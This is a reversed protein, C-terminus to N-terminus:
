WKSPGVMNRMTVYLGSSPSFWDPPGVPPQPNKVYLAICFWSITALNTYVFRWHCFGDTITLNLPGVAITAGLRGTGRNVGQIWVECLDDADVFLYCTPFTGNNAATRRFYTWTNVGGTGAAFPSVGFGQFPAGGSGDPVEYLTPSLIDFTRLQGDSATFGDGNPVATPRMSSYTAVAVNATSFTGSYKGQSDTVVDPPGVWGANIVGTDVTASFYRNMVNIGSAFGSLTYTVTDGQIPEYSSFSWQLAPFVTFGIWTQNSGCAAEPFTTDTAWQGPAAASSSSRANSYWQQVGADNKGVPLQVYFRNRGARWYTTEIPDNGPWAVYTGTSSTLNSDLPVTKPDTNGKTAWVGKGGRGATTQDETWWLSIAQPANPELGAFELRVSSDKLLTGNNSTWSNGTIGGPQTLSFTPVTATGSFTSSTSTVTGAVGGTNSTITAVVTTSGIRSRSWTVAYSRSGGAEITQPFGVSVQSFTMFSTSPTLSISAVTLPALGSNSIAVFLLNNSYITASFTSLGSFSQSIIGFAQTATVSVNRNASTTGILANEGVISINSTGSYASSTSYTVTTSKTGGALILGSILGANVSGGGPNSVNYNSLTARANGTNTVTVETSASNSSGAIYNYSVSSPNATISLTVTPAIIRLRVPVSVSNYSPGIINPGSGDVSGANSRFRINVTSNGSTGSTSGVRVTFSITSGNAVSRPTPLTYFTTTTETLVTGDWLTMSYANINSNASIDLYIGYIVLPTSGTLSASTIYWTETTGLGEGPICTIQPTGTPESISYGPTPTKSSDTVTITVPDSPTGGGSGDGFPVATVTFTETGETLADPRTSISATTFSAAFTSSPALSTTRSLLKFGDLDTSATWGTEEFDLLSTPSTAKIFWTVTNPVNYNSATFTFNILAGNESVSTPSASIQYTATIYIPTGDVTFGNSPTFTTSTPAAVSIAGGLGVGRPMSRVIISDFTGDVGDYNSNNGDNFADVFEIKFTVITAGGYSNDAVNSKASIRYYNANYIGTSNKNYVTAYSNSLAYFDNKAFTPNDATVSLLLNTWSTNQNLGVTPAITGGSRSASFKFSSGANFFYRAADATAFTIATEYFAYNKWGGGTNPTGTYESYTATQTYSVNALQNPGVQDKLTNCTTALVSYADFPDALVTNGVAINTLNPDVDSQHIRTKVIDSRLNDLQVETIKEHQSVASSALVQGYGQTAEVQGTTTVGLVGAVQTRANNYVTPTVKTSFLQSLPVGANITIPVSTAVLDGTASVTRISVTFTEASEVLGDQTPTVSFSGTSDVILVSGISTAFDGANSVSWYLRTNDEVNVTNVTIILPSGENVSLASPLIVYESLAPPPPGQSTDVISVSTSTAVPTGAVSDTFIAVTFNELGETTLDLAPTVSFSGTNGIISVIGTSIGFDDARSALWYLITNDTVNTTTVTFTLPSGENVSSAAPIVAYTPPNPSPPTTSTDNITVLSSIVAIDGSSSITRITARFTEPGETTTDLIPTVSFTGTNNIIAVTGSSIGFDSINNVSWYLVTNDLIDTTNVTFTLTSGENVSSSSVISYTANPPPIITTSTDNIIVSTSTAVPSGTVSGTYISATFIEPGETTADARPTVSFTGSNSNITVTGTNVIFDGANTVAWNLTAGNTVNTTTVTFTLPSGENVSSTAPAVAYTASVPTQSTDNITVAISTAVDFVSITSTRIGVTFTEALAETTTDATPTVTFTGTNSNIAVTGSSTAFDGANTLVAWYLTTGNSVNTTTVTFTLPSGENVSNAAPAVAYTAPPPTQSTDNITVASSTALPSGTISGIYISATFTEATAETTADARPTVAFSGNNGAITVTGNSTEFDGANTVAWNLITGTPINTTTVVFTLPSGENVSTVGGLTAVAYTAAVPTQSTDNITIQGSTAVPLGTISGTYVSATFTEAASETTADARPTVTFIGTNSNITVTGNSTAFDGANSVAWNLTTGNTVNTTTVTFTLSSGENVSSATTSVTYTPVPAAQSTDNITIANSTVVPTGSISGTRVSATFTEPGETGADALPSVSFSGTNGTITFSGSNTGFDGPNTVTWYYTGSTINSGSVNFTLSSGENVSSATPTITYVPSPPVVVTVPNTVTWYLVTGVPVNTTSVAFTLPVGENVSTASPTITYTPQALIDNITVASSTAVAAGGSSLSISATFTEPGSETVFDLTPTVSFNATNGQIVVTGASTSFDGSNTVSWFLQTGSPVNVTNITFRISTGENVSAAAPTISYSRTLSTDNITIPSSTVFVTPTFPGDISDSIVSITFTEAGETAGDATPTITFSGTNGTVSFNGNSVAFDGPRSVSWYLRTGDTAGVTTVTCLLPAGEDVSTAAPSITVNTIATSSDGIGVYESIIKVPSTYNADRIELKYLETGETAFDARVTRVITATNGQITATGQVANDTFDSATITGVYSNTTWYVVTGNPANTTTLVFTATADSTNNEYVNFGGSNGNAILSVYTIAAGPNQSTDNITVASSTAVAAGGNTLSISATFTEPLSETTADATPTVSFTGTNSNIIVTGSSTGFDGANTLSWYLTTPSPVNTTTVTFTLSAGENVSNAAPAIAYTATVPTQSTDNITVASSTAVAAGGNTLSISATFTEATAETTADATPTVSFTGTNSNITVTGTSTAFDGANTLSWYLTTPSPVNTTTVTFTLAAGENVSNAAPAIAYTATAPPTTSTDGIWIAGTQSSATSTIIVPSTYSVGRIELKFAESDETTLDARATRVITATNNQITVTGQLLGDTFDDATISGIFSNTTWYVVTGNPVNSTTLTFTATNAGENIYWNLSSNNTVGVFSTYTPPPTTSTDSIGILNSTIKNPGTSTERIALSFIEPGETLLDARATRTITATNGSIIATGQFLGDTFDDANLGASSPLTIWVVETGNAANQTTLTFTATFQGERLTTSGASEDTVGVLSSYTISDPTPPPPTTSTDIITILGSTAVANGGNTTSISVTFTQSGETSNDAIASINIQGSGSNITVTGSTAAFDASSTTTNNIFWYLVTGDAVNTTLAVVPTSSGEQVSTFPLYLEYTSPSPPTQSTDNITISGSTAVATGTISGTYVSATFTEATAETTADARPTVSFAGANSNIIVTGNSTAFDGANTVAWNLTTGNAVNTTTVNFTLSSGENVSTAGAAAAVVYTPPSPTTSTDAIGIFGSTIKVASTYSTERIELKLLETGETFLDARASRTITATNNQITVTGQLLGDTFDDTTMTGYGPTSLTTWYVVTGNPADTTTLTFTATYQGEFLTTGNPGIDSVGVFSVYGIPTLSSDAIGISGGSSSSTSTVVVPDTVSPFRIELKFLETGETTLDARATRVITATNNQITVNGQIANDTFDSATLTGVVPLTTWYVVTGDSVGTTTLTFTASYQGEYIGWNLASWDTVGVFSVVFSSFNAPQPFETSAVELVFTSATTTFNHNLVGPTVTGETVIKSSKKNTPLSNIFPTVLASTVLTDNTNQVFYFKCTSANLASYWPGQVGNALYQYRPSTSVLIPVNVTSGTPDSPVAFTNVLQQVAPTVIVDTNNYRLDMPGCINLVAKPWNGSSTGYNGVALVALHAGASAGSVVLGYTNVYNYITQWYASASAGAGSVMCYRLITEIDNIAGPYGGTGDGGYGYSAQSTLRYACNVVVYGAEAVKKIEDYDNNTFAAQDSTFGTASKAGGSWGGGHIWIVVGKIVSDPVLLDVRQLFNNGYPVETTTVNIM